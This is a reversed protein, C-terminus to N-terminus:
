KAARQLGYALSTPHNIPASYLETKLTEAVSGAASVAILQAPFEEQCFENGLEDTKDAPQASDDTYM